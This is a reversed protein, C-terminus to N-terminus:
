NIKCLGNYIRDIHQKFEEVTLDNKMMNCLPCCAVCNDTEYQKSSDLRDLGNFPIFFVSSTGKVMRPEIGCYRCNNSGIKYFEEKSLNFDINRRKANYKYTYYIQNLAAVGPDKTTRKKTIEASLCGCSKTRGSVARSLRFTTLKGCDCKFDWERYGTKLSQDKNYAIATLRGFRIGTADKINAKGGEECGCTKKKNNELRWATSTTSNGCDCLCNWISKRQITSQESNRDIVILKNFKLGTLDRIPYM